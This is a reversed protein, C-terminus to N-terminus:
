AELADGLVHRVVRSSGRPSMSVGILTSAVEMTRRQHTVVIVQTTAGMEVLLDAFLALNKDDLAAEVEDLVVFPVPRASLVAFLFALSVLSREGGSLLGVRHVKRAPITIELAVPSSFPESPDELVVKGGAGRFLRGMLGDFAESVAAVVEITRSAIAEELEARLREAASRAERVDRSAERMRGLEAELEALELAALPNVPGLRGLREELEEALARASTPAVGEPLTADTLASVSLGVRRPIADEEAALRARTRSEGTALELRRGQLEEREVRLRRIENATAAEEQARATAVEVLPRLRAGLDDTALELAELAEMGSRLETLERDDLPRALRAELESLRQEMEGLRRTADRLSATLEGARVRIGVLQRQVEAERAQHASLARRWSEESAVLARREHELEALAAEIPAPDSVLPVEEELRAFLTALEVDLEGRRRALGTLERELQTAQRQREELASSAM